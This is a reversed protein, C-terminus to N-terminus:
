VAATYAGVAARGELGMCVGDLVARRECACLRAFVLVRKEEEVKGELSTCIGDLVAKWECARLSM